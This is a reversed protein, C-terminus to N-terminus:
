ELGPGTRAVTGPAEGAPVRWGAPRELVRLTAAFEDKEGRPVDGRWVERWDALDLHLRVDGAPSAHVDTLYIRGAVPLLAEFIAAGGIVMIEDANRTRACQRAVQLAQAINPVVLAGRPNFGPDRTAVINDRGDLPRTLSDWTKRGMILPKGMTLRRFTKLDSSLRWPLRGDRGIVGNQAVAVIFAIV